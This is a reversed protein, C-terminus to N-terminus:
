PHGTSTLDRNM